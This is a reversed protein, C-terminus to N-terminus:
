SPVKDRNLGGTLKDVTLIAVTSAFSTQLTELLDPIESVKLEKKDVRDMILDVVVNGAIKIREYREREVLPMKAVAEATNKNMEDIKEKLYSM